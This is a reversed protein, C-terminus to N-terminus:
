RTFSHPELSQAVRVAYARHAVGDVRSCHASTETCARASVGGIISM